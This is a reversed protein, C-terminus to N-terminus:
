ILGVKKLADRFKTFGEAVLQPNAGNVDFCIQGGPAVGIHFQCTNAIAKMSQQAFVEGFKVPLGNLEDFM